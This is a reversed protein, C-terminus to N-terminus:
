PAGVPHMECWIENVLSEYLQARILDMREAWVDPPMTARKRSMISLARLRSQIMHRYHGINHMHRVQQENGLM